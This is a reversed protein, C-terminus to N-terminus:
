HGHYFYTGARDVLFKYVFTESPQIACQSVFATGDNWPTGIQRIGHWHIVFAETAMLNEVAVVITDGEQARITPGPYQGNITILVKEVCDPSWFQYDVQWKYHRIRGAEASNRLSFAFLMFCAVWWISDTAKEM